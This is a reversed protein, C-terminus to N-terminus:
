TAYADTSAQIARMTAFCHDGDLPLQIFHVKACEFDIMADGGV